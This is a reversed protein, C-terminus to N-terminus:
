AGVVGGALEAVGEGCWGPVCCCFCEGRLAEGRSPQCGEGPVAGLVPLDLKERWLVHVRAALDDKLRAAPGSM